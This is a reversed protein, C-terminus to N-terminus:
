KVRSRLLYESPQLEEDFSRMPVGILADGAQHDKRINVPRDIAQEANEKDAVILRVQLSSKDVFYWTGNSYTWKTERSWTESPIRVTLLEFDPEQIKWADLAVAIIADRDGGAYGDGPLPNERIILEALSAARERLSAKMTEIERGVAGAGAPDLVLYLAFKDDVWELRQPIGGTFWLPKQNAVAENALRDAEALDARIDAPLSRKQEAALAFFGEHESLFNNGAIEVQKGLDTEQEMLRAYARAIRICEAKAVEGQAHAEAAQARQERFLYGANSYSSALERLRKVDEHLKPYNAPNVLDMLQAHLPKMYAEVAAVSAKANVLRQEAEAVGEGNSPIKALGDKVFGAQRYTEAITAMASATTRHNIALQDEVPRLEELLTVLGATDGEVRRLTFLTNKFNDAHPYGLKVTAPTVAGADQQAEGGTEPKPEPEPAPKPEPTKGALIAGLKTYLEVAANYRATVEAVGAGGASLASVLKGAPELDGFAQDLRMKSLKAASGKPPATLHGISGDVLQLNSEARQLHSNAKAVDAATDALASGALLLLSFLGLLWRGPRHLTLM